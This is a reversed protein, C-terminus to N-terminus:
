SLTTTTSTSVTAGTMLTITQTTNDEYTFVLEITSPTVTSTSTSTATSPIVPKDTLDNYSGSTAVTALVPITPIDDTTALTYETPEFTTGSPKGTPLKFNKVGDGAIYVFMNPRFTLTIPVPSSKEVSLSGSDFSKLGTITQNTDTTVFKTTDPIPASLGVELQNTQYNYTSTLGDKFVPNLASLNVYYMRNFASLDVSKYWSSDSGDLSFLMQDYPDVVKLFPSDPISPGADFEITQDGSQNLTITGKTTGGQTFTITPNNVTPIDNTTALVRDTEWTSSDPMTIGYTNNGDDGLKIKALNVYLGKTSSIIPHQYGDYSGNRIKIDAEPHNIAKNSLKFTFGSFDVESITGSTEGITKLGTITQETDLTVFNNTDPITPKDILDNYSGSTAVTAFKPANYIDDYYSIKWLYQYPGKWTNDDDYGFAYPKLTYYSNYPIRIIQMWTYGITTVKGAYSAFIHYAFGNITTTGHIVYKSPNALIEATKTADPFGNTVDVIEAYDNLKDDLQTTTVYNTPIDSKTAIVNTDVSIENNTITIGQGATYDSGGGGGWPASPDPHNTFLKESYELLYLPMLRQAQKKPFDM